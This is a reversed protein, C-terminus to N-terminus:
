GVAGGGEGKGGGCRELVRVASDGLAIAWWTDWNLGLLPATEDWM